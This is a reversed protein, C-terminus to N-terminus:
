IEYVFNSGKKKKIDYEFSIRSHLENQTIEIEVYLIPEYFSTKFLKLNEEEESNLDLDKIKTYFGGGDSLLEAKDPQCGLMMEWMESTAYNLDISMNSDDSLYFLNDFNINKLANDNYERAYFNNFEQLHEKSVIYDRFLYPKEDFITSNYSNDDKIKSMGDLLIDVYQSNVQYRNMYQQVLPLNKNSLSTPNFKGRASNIKMVIEVGSSEFPIFAAQSLFLYLTESSNTDLVASIEKSTQLINLLDEVIISSQYIFNESTVIKTADNVQKLGIGIAVTIVIVFMM